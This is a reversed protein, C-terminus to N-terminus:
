DNRKAGRRRQTLYDRVYEVSLNLASAIQEVKLGLQQLRTIADNREQSLREAREREQETRVKEM